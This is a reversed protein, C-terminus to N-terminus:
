LQQIIQLGEAAEVTDPDVEVADDNTLDWFESICNINAYMHEKMTRLEVLRESDLKIAAATYWKSFAAVRAETFDRYSVTSSQDKLKLITNRRDIIVKDGISNYIKRLDDISIKSDKDNCPSFSERCNNAKIQKKSARNNGPKSM